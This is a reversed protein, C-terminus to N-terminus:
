SGGLPQEELGRQANMDPPPEETTTGGPTGSFAVPDEGQLMRPTIVYNGGMSTVWITEATQMDGATLGLALGGTIGGLTAYVLKAPMYVVNSLVTLSGWGADELYGAHAPPVAVLGAVLASAAISRRWGKMGDEELGVARPRDPKYRM